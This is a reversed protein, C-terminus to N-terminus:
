PNDYAVLNHKLLIRGDDAAIVYSYFRPEGNQDNGLDAEVYYGAVLSDEGTRFFVPKGRNPEANASAGARRLSASRLRTLAYGGPAAAAAEFDASELSVGSLDSVARRIAASADLKFADRGRSGSLKAAAPLDGTVYGSLAVVNWRRDMAVSIQE